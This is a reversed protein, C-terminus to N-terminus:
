ALIERVVRGYVDTLRFDRGPHRHTPKEHDLGLQHWITGHLDHIHVTEDVAGYGYDDTKGHELGGKIGGGALWATFGYPNHGRGFTEEGDKGLSIDQDYPSRGFEGTWLVLTEDLLGRVHLDTLLGAIPKDAVA